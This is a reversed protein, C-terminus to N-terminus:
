SVYCYCKDFRCIHGGSWGESVEGGKAAVEDAQREVGLLKPREVGDAAAEGTFEEEDNGAEALIEVGDPRGGM